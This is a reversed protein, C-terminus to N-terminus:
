VLNQTHVRAATEDALRIEVRRQKEVREAARAELVLELARVQQHALAVAGRAEDSEGRAVELNRQQIVVQAECWQLLRERDGRVRVPLPIGHVPTQAADIQLLVMRVRSETAALLRAQEQVVLEREALVQREEDLRRQRQELAVELAADPNRKM